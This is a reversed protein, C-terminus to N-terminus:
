GLLKPDVRSRRELAELFGHQVLVWFEVPFRLPRDLFWGARHGLIPRDKGFGRDASM